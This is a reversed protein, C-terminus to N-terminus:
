FCGWADGKADGASGRLFPFTSMLFSWTPWYRQILQVVQKQTKIVPQLVLRVPEGDTEVDYNKISLFINECCEAFERRNADRNAYVSDWNPMCSAFYLLLIVEDSPAKCSRDSLLKQAIPFIAGIAELVLEQPQPFGIEHWGIGCLNLMCLFHSLRTLSADGNRIRSLTGPSVGIRNALRRDIVKGDVSCYSPHSQQISQDLYDLIRQEYRSRIHEHLCEWLHRRIKKICDSDAKKQTEGNTVKIVPKPPMNWPAIWLTKAADLVESKSRAEALEDKIRPQM